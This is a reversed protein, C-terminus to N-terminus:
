NGRLKRLVRQLELLPRVDINQLYKQAEAVRKQNHNMHSLTTREVEAITARLAREIETLKNAVQRIQEPDPESM